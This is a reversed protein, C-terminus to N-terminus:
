EATVVEIVYIPSGDAGAKGWIEWGTTEFDEDWIMMASGGNPSLLIGKNAGVDRDLGLYATTTSLNVIIWALRNPNDDLVKKATTDLTARLPNVITRTKVKFQELLLDKLTM